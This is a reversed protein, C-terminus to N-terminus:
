TSMEVRGFTSELVRLTNESLGCTARVVCSMEAYRPKRLLDTDNGVQVAFREVDEDTAHVIEVRDFDFLARRALWNVHLSGGRRGQAGQWAADLVAVMDQPCDIFERSQCCARCGYYVMDREGPLGADHAGCHVLCRPCLLRGAQDALPQTAVAIDKLARVAVGCLLGNERALTQLAPAAAGGLAVLAPYRDALGALADCVREVKDKDALPGRPKYAFLQGGATAEIEGDPLGGLGQPLLFALVDHPSPAGPLVSGATGAIASGPRVAGLKVLTYYTADGERLSEIKLDHGRYAGVLRAQGAPFDAPAVSLGHAAAFEQGGEPHSRGSGRPSLVIVAIIAAFLGALLVFPVATEIM